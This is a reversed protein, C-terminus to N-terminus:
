YRKFYLKRKKSFNNIVFGISHKWEEKLNSTLCFTLSLCLCSMLRRDMLLLTLPSSHNTREAIPLMGMPRDNLMVRPVWSTLDIEREENTLDDVPLM